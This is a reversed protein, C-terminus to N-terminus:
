IQATSELLHKRSIPFLSGQLWRRTDHGKKTENEHTSLHWSHWETQDRNINDPTGRVQNEQFPAIQIQLM